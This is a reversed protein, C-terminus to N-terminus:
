VSQLFSKLREHFIVKQDLVILHGCDPVMELRGKPATQACALGLSQPAVADHDAHLFFVPIEVKGVLEAPEYSSLLEVTELAVPLPAAAFIAELWHLTAESQATHFLAKASKRAFDPWDRRMAKPMRSYPSHSAGPVAVAVVGKLRSPFRTACELAVAAGFAFGVLIADSLKEEEILRSVDSAYRDLTYPGGLHDSQGFGPLDPTIVQFGPLLAEEAYIWMKRNLCWGHLFVVPRGHGRASFSMGTSTQSRIVGGQM